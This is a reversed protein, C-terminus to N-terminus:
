PHVHNVLRRKCGNLSALCCNQTVKEPDERAVPIEERSVSPIVNMDVSNFYKPCSAIVDRRQRFAIGDRKMVPQGAYVEARDSIRELLGAVTECGV